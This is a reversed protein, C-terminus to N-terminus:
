KSSDNMHDKPDTSTSLKKIKGKKLQDRESIAKTSPIMHTSFATKEGSKQAQVIIQIGVNDGVLYGGQDMEKNWVMGFDKRNITTTLEIFLNEKGWPDIISGRYLLEASIAKKVGRIELIGTLKTKVKQKLVVSGNSVFVIQPYNAAFLFEHGKLHFDRKQDNTDVSNPNIKASVNSLNLNSSDFEFEAEYDKFQGEVKSISMYEVDFKIKSHEKNIEYHSAMSSMSMLLVFTIFLKRM